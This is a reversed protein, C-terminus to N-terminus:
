KVRYLERPLNSLTEAGDKTIIVNDEIRVGNRDPLYIGPEVTFAMGPKLVLDNEAYMYPEEHGLMGIGHGVRHTFYKGYGANEIVARAARDVDGAPIGPRATSRGAANAEAVVKAIHEWESDIPGFAVTRTLDSIYNNYTAGWDVVLLDGATLRRDGPTAHPNAGNPGSSVIPSFAFEADSGNRLLQLTLEGAIERESQGIKMTALTALFAKQAIDVAKRMAEIESQDKCIRLQSLSEDASIFQAYSAAKELFRLELVRLALSEVGAKMGDLHAARAAQNFADQWTRPNDNYFFPTVDFPLGTLKQKELEPLVMIPAKEQIFIAVVPREMLHFRLGTLYFVSPGPNVVVCDLGAARILGGLREQRMSYVSKPENSM